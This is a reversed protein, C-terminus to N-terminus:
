GRLAALMRGIEATEEDVDRRVVFAQEERKLEERQKQEWFWDPVIEEAGARGVFGHSAKKERRFEVEEARAQEVSTIGKKAWAQLIAKVYGWNAKGRELARKMANMVLPEGMDNVWNIMDDAVYANLMGFNAQFFAIADTTAVITKDGKKENEKQKILTGADQGKLHDMPQDADQNAGVGAGVDSGHDAQRDASVDNSYDGSYTNGSIRFAQGQVADEMALRVMRYIPAQNHSRSQFDIYGKEKLETRARKFSSEKLGSKMRLVGAAVTFKEIWRAKNNIHMLTHWLTVASASLPNREVLDYFANIEKIYNM